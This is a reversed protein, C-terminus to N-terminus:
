GADVERRFDKWSQQKKLNVLIMLERAKVRMETLKMLWIGEGVRTREFYYNFSHMAAIIGGALTVPESLRIDAKVVEHELEDIWLIGTARNILRDELKKIPLNEQKPSFSLVPAVRGEFTERRLFHFKFRSLM